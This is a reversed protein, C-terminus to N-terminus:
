VYILEENVYPILKPQIANLSVLDVRTKLLHELEDAFTVFELGIPNDFDVLIDIDSDANAENRAYSGFIGIKSVSYKDEFYKKNERLKNKIESLSLM